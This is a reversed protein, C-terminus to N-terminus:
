SKGSAGFLDLYYCCREQFSDIAIKLLGFYNADEKACAAALRRTTTIFLDTAINIKAIGRAIAARFQEEPIGLDSSCM